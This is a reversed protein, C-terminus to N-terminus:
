WVAIAIFTALVTSVRHGVALLVALVEWLGVVRLIILGVSARLIILGVSALM